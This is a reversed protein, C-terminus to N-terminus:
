AVERRDRPVAGTVHTVSVCHGIRDDELPEVVQGTRDGFSELKGVFEVPPIPM